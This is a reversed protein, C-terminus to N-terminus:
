HSELINLWKQQFDNEFTDYMEKHSCAERKDGLTWLDSM